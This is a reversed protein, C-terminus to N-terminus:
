PPPAGDKKAGDGRKPSSTQEFFAPGGSHMRLPPAGGGATLPRTTKPTPAPLLPPQGRQPPRPGGRAPPRPAGPPAPRRGAARGQAAPAAGPPLDTLVRLAGEPIADGDLAAPPAATSLSLRPRGISHKKNNLFELTFTLVTGGDFGVPGDTEFVAAHDKGFQ